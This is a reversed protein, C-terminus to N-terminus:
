SVTIYLSLEIQVDLAAALRVLDQPLRDSQVMAVGESSWRRPEHGFDLVAEGAEALVRVDAEHKRLFAIADAFQLPLQDFEAKSVHFSLHASEYVRGTRGIADGRENLRYPQISIRDATPRAGEPLKVSLICPM